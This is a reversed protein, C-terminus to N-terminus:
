YTAHLIEIEPIRLFNIGKKMRRDVVDDEMGGNSSSKSKVVAFQIDSGIAGEAESDSIEFVRSM